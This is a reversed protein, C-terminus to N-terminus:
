DAALLLPAGGHGLGYGGRPTGHGDTPPASASGAGAALGAVELLAFRLLDGDKEQVSHDFASAQYGFTPRDVLVTALVVGRLYAWRGFFYFGV